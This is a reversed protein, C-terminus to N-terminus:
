SQLKIMKAVSPVWIGPRDGDILIFLMYYGVPRDAATNDCKFLYPPKFM